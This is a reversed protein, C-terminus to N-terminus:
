IKTKYTIYSCELDIIIDKVKEKDHEIDDDDKYKKYKLYDEWTYNIYTSTIVNNSKHQRFDLTFTSRKADSETLGGITGDTSYSNLNSQKLISTIGDNQENVYWKSSQYKDQIDPKDISSVDNQYFYGGGTPKILIERLKGGEKLKFSTTWEWQNPTGEEKLKLIIEPDIIEALLNDINEFKKEDSINSEGTIFDKLKDLAIKRDGIAEMEEFKDDIIDTVSYLSDYISALFYIQLKEKFLSNNGIERKILENINNTTKKNFSNSVDKDEGSLLNFLNNFGNKNGTELVTTELRIPATEDTSCSSLVVIPLISILLTSSFLNKIKM